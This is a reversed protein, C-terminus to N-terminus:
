VVIFPAPTGPVYQAPIYVAVPRTYPVVEGPKDRSIGKYIKSDESKMMFRHITGHPITNDWILDNSNAWPPRITFDGNALISPEPEGSGAGRGRGRGDGRQGASLSVGPILAGLAIAIVVLGTKTRQTRPM